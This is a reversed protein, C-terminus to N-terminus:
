GLCQLLIARPGGDTSIDTRRDREPMGGYWSCGLQRALNDDAMQSLLDVWPSPNPAEYVYIASLGPAMSLAMEIDLCVEVNGRGPSGVGGDIPVNVLPVDPLGAVAEYAAIDDLYYDDFQLLGVSEGTGDLTVGPCYAARFDWGLYTRGPGFGDEPQVNLTSPQPLPATPNRRVSLPHPLAYNDLGSISLLPVALDLSPETDPAYFRRKERPHAYEMLKVHFVRELDAAPASVDVVIRSPHTATVRLGNRQAFALVSQYDRESPGFREAFQVPTLFHHYQPSAPDYLQQLLNTLAERNRLRLGLALRLQASGALRGLPTANVVGAPMTGRLVQRGAAPARVIPVLMLGVCVAVIQVRM